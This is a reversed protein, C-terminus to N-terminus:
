IASRTLQDACTTCILHGCPTLLPKKIVLFCVPCELDKDIPDIFSLEYGGVEPEDEMAVGGILSILSHRLVSDPVLSAVNVLPTIPNRKDFCAVTSTLWQWM